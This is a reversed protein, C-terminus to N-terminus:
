NSEEIDQVVQTEDDLKKSVAVYILLAAGAILVLWGWSYSISELMADGVFGFPNGEMDAAYEDKIENMKVTIDAFTVLITILSAIGTYLLFKYKNLFIIGLSILSFLLVIVGDGEGDRFYDVSGVIPIEMIPLFVGIFLLFTGVFALLRRKGKLWNEV